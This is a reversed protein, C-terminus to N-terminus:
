SRPQASAGIRVFHALAANIADDGQDPLANLEEPAALGDRNSDFEVHDLGLAEAMRQEDLGVVRKGEVVLVPVVVEGTLDKLAARWRPDKAVNREEYDVSNQSLFERM